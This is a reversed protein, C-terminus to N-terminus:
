AHATGGEAVQAGCRQEWRVPEGAPTLVTLPQPYVQVSLLSALLPEGDMHGRMETPLQVRIDRGRFMTVYPAKDVHKGAYVLPFLQLFRLRSLRSVVCVDVQGDDYRADPFMRMGGALYPCNGLTLMWVEHFEMANGDVEVQMGCPRYHLMTRLTSVLYGLSGLRKLFRSTNVDHAVMGDFGVGAAVFFRRGNVSVANFPAVRPHVILEALQDASRRIRLARALDNGTGFPVIGICVDAGAGQDVAANALEHFTGDGGVAVLFRRGARIAERGVAEAEGPKTTWCVDFSVNRATLRAALAAWRERCRGRGAAPNVIFLPKDTVEPASRQLNPGTADRGNM